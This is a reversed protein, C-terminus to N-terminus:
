EDAPQDYWVAIQNVRNIPALAYHLEGRLDKEFYFFEARKTADNKRIDANDHEIPESDGVSLLTRMLAVADTRKIGNEGYKVEVGFCVGDRCHVVSSAGTADTTASNYQTKKGFHGAEDFVFVSNAARIEAEPMGVRVLNPAAIPESTKAQTATCGQLTASGLALALGVLGITWNWKTNRNLQIRDMETLVGLRYSYRATARSLWETRM